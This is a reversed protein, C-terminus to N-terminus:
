SDSALRDGNTLIMATTLFQCTSIRVEALSASMMLRLNTLVEEEEKILFEDLRRFHGQFIENFCLSYILFLTDNRVVPLTWTALAKKLNYCTIINNLKFTQVYLTQASSCDGQLATGHHCPRVQFPLYNPPAYLHTHHYIQPRPSHCTHNNQSHM